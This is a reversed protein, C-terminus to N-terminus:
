LNLAAEGFPPSAMTLPDKSISPVVNMKNTRVKTRAKSEAIRYRPYPM